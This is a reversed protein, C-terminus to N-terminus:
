IRFRGNIQFENRQYDRKERKVRAPTRNAPKNGGRRRLDKERIIRRDRSYRTPKEM